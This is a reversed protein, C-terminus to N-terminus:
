RREGAEPHKKKFDEAKKRLRIVEAQKEEIRAKLKEIHKEESDAWTAYYCYGCTYYEPHKSKGKYGCKCVAPYLPGPITAGFSVQAKKPM